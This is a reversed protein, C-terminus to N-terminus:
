PAAHNDPEDLHRTEYHNVIIHVLHKRWHHACLYLDTGNVHVVHKGETAHCGDCLHHEKPEAVVTGAPELRGVPGPGTQKWRWAQPM